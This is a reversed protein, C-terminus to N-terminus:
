DSIRLTRTASERRKRGDQKPLAVGLTKIKRFLTSKHIGLERAAALRNGSHRRVAQQIAQAEVSQITATMDAPPLRRQRSTLEEPLHSIEIRHGPCLVFAHEIVNELERVNGPYDHAMLPALAQTSVEDINKGHLSNFRHLFHDILLPIDERRKRLPPLDLRVVNIRYFLDERFSGKRMQDALDRNTAAIVRVDAKVSRNTGLPEFSKDQLVRLFRVQLALSIEGIEDLLLTGGEALAFRGPKDRSAGTFAGAKYGFMESELLTEPISGCNVAVFPRDKRASLGHIARALLEKGTGTEGQILVTSDSAAIQPLIDFIRRILPSRSVLEGMQFRGQLEKRLEEVLSLDRFTEAGGVIRGEADRLLATSVSIPIRRGAADVIFAPQSILRAGTEMTRRLACDTECM